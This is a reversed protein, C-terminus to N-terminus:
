ENTMGHSDEVSIILRWPNNIVLSWKRFYYRKSMQIFSPKSHSVLQIHMFLALSFSPIFFSHCQLYILKREAPQSIFTSESLLLVNWRVRWGILAKVSLGTSDAETRSASPVFSSKVSSSCTFSMDRSLWSMALICWYSGPSQRTDLARMFNNEFTFGCGVCKVKVQGTNLSKNPQFFVCMVICAWVKGM